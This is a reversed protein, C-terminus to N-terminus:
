EFSVKPNQKRALSIAQIIKSDIQPGKNPDEKAKVKSSHKPSKSILDSQRGLGKNKQVPHNGEITLPVVVPQNGKTFFYLFEFQDVKIIQLRDTPGLRTSETLKIRNNVAWKGKITNKNKLIYIQIAILAVIFLVAWPRCLYLM